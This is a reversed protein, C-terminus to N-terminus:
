AAPGSTPRTRLITAQATGASGAVGSAALQIVLGIIRGSADRNLKVVGGEELGRLILTSLRRLEAAETTLDRGALHYYRAALLWTGLIGVLVGVITSLITTM